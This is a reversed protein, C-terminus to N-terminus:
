ILHLVLKGPQAQEQQKPQSQRLWSQLVDAKHKVLSWGADVDHQFCLAEYVDPDEIQILFGLEQFSFARTSTLTSIAADM